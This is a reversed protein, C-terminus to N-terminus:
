SGSVDIALRTIRALEILQCSEARTQRLREREYAHERQLKRLQEIEQEVPTLPRNAV